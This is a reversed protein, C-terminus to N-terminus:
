DGWLTLYLRGSQRFACRAASALPAARALARDRWSRHTLREVDPCEPRPRRHPPSATKARSVDRRHAIRRRAARLVRFGGRRPRERGHGRAPRHGRRLEDPRHRRRGRRGYGASRRLGRGRGVSSLDITDEGDTFDTITDTGHDPTFVFTDAGAGGTLRDDGEGGLLLDQGSGGDLRDDGEGGFLRDHGTGGLLSDDGEEGYLDDPDNGGELRDDGEGGFVRDYGGKAKVTTGQASDLMLASSDSGVFPDSPRGVKTSGFTISTTTGDPMAFNAASLDSAATGRIEISGGLADHSIRVGRGNEMDVITLDSFAIAEPLLRLDIVDNEVEFHYILDNGADELYIFRDKGAGGVMLDDGTGGAILDDGDGGYISDNGEDGWLRDNGGDGHLADAGTDGRVFDQDAGGSLVDGGSGGRLTDRGGGGGVVDDGSGGLVVDRGAGGELHDLNSGGEIIDNGGGGRIEDDGKGGILIDSLETAEGLNAM